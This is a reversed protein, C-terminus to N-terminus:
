SLQWSGPTPTDFMTHSPLRRVDQRSSDYDETYSATLMQLMCCECGASPEFLPSFVQKWSTEHRKHFSEFMARSPAVGQTAEVLFAQSM